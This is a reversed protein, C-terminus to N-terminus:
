HGAARKGDGSYIRGKGCPKSRDPVACTGCSTRSGAGASPNGDNRQIKGYHCRPCGRR